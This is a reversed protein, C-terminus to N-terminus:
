NKVMIMFYKSCPGCPGTDGMSWFNDSTSIKIIKNDSLGAIKKWLRFSEEDEHFVTVSLKEKPLKFDKTLLSWAHIIAENKLIIELPFIEWCKLLITDQLTVVM